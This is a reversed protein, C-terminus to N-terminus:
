LKVIKCFLLFHESPINRNRETNANVTWETWKYAVHRCYLLEQIYKMGLNLAHIM